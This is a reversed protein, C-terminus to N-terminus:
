RYVSPITETWGVVPVGPAMVFVEVRRNKRRDSATANPAIPQHAGFGAVGVRQPAIGKEQLLQAVANARATSLHFNTPYQDRVPRGAIGRSDTHGVVMLRLDEAENSDLIAALRALTKRAGPKLDAEGSDFLIDADFLALGTAPDFKLSDDEEALERLQRQVEAPLPVPSGNAYRRRLGSAEGDLDALESRSLGLQEQLSTLRREAQVLEDEANRAHVKLNEIEAAQARCRESLNSNQTRCANLQTAPVMCGALSPVLILWLLGYRSLCCRM